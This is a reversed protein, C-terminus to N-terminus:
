AIRRDFGLYEEFIRYELNYLAALDYSGKDVIGPDVKPYGMFGPRAFLGDMFVQSDAFLLFKGKGYSTEALVMREDIAILTKLTHSPRKESLVFFSFAGCFFTLLILTGSITPGFTIPIGALRGLGASIEQSINTVLRWFSPDNIYFIYLICYFLNGLALASLQAEYVGASRLLLDFGCIFIILSAIWFEPKNTSVLAVFSILILSIGAVSLMRNCIKKYSKAYIILVTVLSILGCVRLFIPSAYGMSLSFINLSFMILIISAFRRIMIVADSLSEIM